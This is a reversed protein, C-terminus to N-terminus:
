SGILWFDAVTQGIKQMKGKHKGTRPAITIVSLYEVGLM